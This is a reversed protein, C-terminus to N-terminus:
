IKDISAQSAMSEKQESVPMTPMGLESRFIRNQERLRIIEEDLLAKIKDFERIQVLFIQLQTQLHQINKNKEALLIELKDLKRETGQPESYNLPKQPVPTKPIPSEVIEKLLTKSVWWLATFLVALYVILM